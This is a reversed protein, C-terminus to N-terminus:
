YGGFVIPEGVCVCVGRRAVHLNVTQGRLAIGAGGQPTYCYYSLTGGAYETFKHTARKDTLLEDVFQAAASESPFRFIASKGKVYPLDAFAPETKIEAQSSPSYLYYEVSREANKAYGAGSFDNLCVCFLGFFLSVALACATKFFRVFGFFRM